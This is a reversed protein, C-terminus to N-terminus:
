WDSFGQWTQLPARRRGSASDTLIAPWVMASADSSGIRRASSHNAVTSAVRVGCRASIARRM